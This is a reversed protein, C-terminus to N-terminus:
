IIFSHIFSHSCDILQRENHFEFCFKALVHFFFESGPKEFQVEFVAFKAFGEHELAYKHEKGYFYEDAM